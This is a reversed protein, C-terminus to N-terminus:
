SAHAPVTSPFKLRRHAACSDFLTRGGDDAEALMLRTGTVPFQSQGAGGNPRLFIVVSLAALHRLTSLMSKQKSLGTHTFSNEVGSRQDFM